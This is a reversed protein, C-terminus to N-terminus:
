SPFTLQVSDLGLTGAPWPARPRAGAALTYEPIRRHWEELVVRLELRALHSGLCRHPGRGFSFHTARRGSDLTDAEEYREPDRNAAGYSLLVSTGAPLTVGAVTVEETTVRPAFPVPGETRLMDEVFGPIRSYDGAILARQEPDQALTAFTFGLSATVTDLGAVVFLFCLGLIEEYSLGGEDRTALLQTLLDDGAGGKREGVYHSLYGFLEMGHQMLEPSPETAGPKTFELISDKWRVLRDRDELPLGFLTLFVQSPYPVALDSVLDCSGRERIGDILAGAQERLRAEIAAMRRPSFFPDLLRRYRTHDPPDVAIPIMPLPSGLRDFASKSSFVEPHRAAEEVAAASALVYSDNMEVVDGGSRLVEWGKARDDTLPLDDVSLNQVPCPESM